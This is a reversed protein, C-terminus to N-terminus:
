DRYDRYFEKEYGDLPNMKDEKKKVRKEKKRGKDASLYIYIVAVILIISLLLLAPEFYEDEADQDSVEDKEKEGEGRYFLIFDEEAVNGAEDIVRVTVMYSANNELDSYPEITIVDGEDNMQYGVDLIEGTDLNKLSVMTKSGDIPESVNVTASGNKEDLETLTIKPDKRDVVVTIADWDEEQEINGASDIGVCAFRHAGDQSFNFDFLVRSIEGYITNDKIREWSSNEFSHYIHYRSLSHDDEILFEFRIHTRNTMMWKTDKDQNLIRTKPPDFDVITTTEGELNKNEINGSSDKSLTCFDYSGPSSPEFAFRGSENTGVLSKNEWRLWNGGDIRYHLAISSLNRNDSANYHIEFSENGVYAPSQVTESMPPDDDLITVNKLPTINKNFAGDNTMIQYGLTSANKPISVSVNFRNESSNYMMVKKFSTVDTGYYVFAMGVERNDRIDAIFDFTDNTTGSEASHDYVRPPDTDYVTINMVITYRTNNYTDNAKIQYYLYHANSPVEIEYLYINDESAEMTHNFTLNGDEEDFRYGVLVEDVQSDDTITANVTFLDSTKAKDPSNDRIMPGREDTTNFSWNYTDGQNGVIDKFDSVSLEIEDHDQWRSHTFRATDNEYKHTGWGLFSYEVDHEGSQNIVPIHSSNMSEDFTINVEAYLGVDVEDPKPDVSVVEPPRMDSTVNIKSSSTSEFGSVFHPESVDVYDRGRISVGIKVGPNAYHSVNMVLFLRDSGLNSVSYGIGDFRAAKQSVGSTSLLKDESHNFVGNEDEDLYLLMDYVDSDSCTGQLDAHLEDLVMGNTETSLSVGEMLVYREGQYAEEVTSIDATDVDLAGGEGFRVDDIFWGRSGTNIYDWGIRFRVKIVRGKYDSVDFKAHSWGSTYSAYASEGELPNDWRRSITDPYGNEPHIKSWSESEDDWLEVIGGDMAGNESTKFSYKHWFSIYIDDLSGDLEVYPSYLATSGGDYREASETGSWWSSNGSKSEHKTRGWNDRTMAGELREHSWDTKKGDFDFSRVRETRYPDTISIKLGSGISRELSSNFSMDVSVSTGPETDSPMKAEVIITKNEGPDMQGTDPIGDGDTDILEEGEESLLTIGVEDKSTFSIDTTDEKLGQNTVNIKYKTTEGPYSFDSILDRDIDINPKTEGIYFDDIYWGERYTGFYTRDWGVHFRLRVTRGRYDSINFVEQNWSPFKDNYTYAMKGKLPNTNVKNFREITIEGDYGEEPYIHVWSRSVNDWIEVVGGDMKFDSEGQFSYLHSFTLFKKDDSENIEFYPSILASGGSTMPTHFENGSWWSKEGSHSRKDTSMWQDHQKVGDILGHRWREDDEEFDDFHPLEYPVMTTMNFDYKVDENESSSLHLSSIEMAGPAPSSPVNVELIIKKKEHKSINGTKFVNSSENSGKTLPVGEEDYLEYDWGKESAYEIDFSDNKEGLNTIYINYRTEDGEMCYSEQPGTTVNFNHEPFDAKVSVDDVYWGSWENSWPEAWFHFRFLLFDNELFGSLNVKGQRWGNSKQGYCDAYSIPSSASITENYGDEPVVYDWNKGLDTSVELYGGDDASNGPDDGYISYWHYFSMNAKVAGRLDILPSELVVDANKTYNSKLNTGWCNSSSHPSEPGHEFGSVNGLEWRTGQGNDSDRWGDVPEHFDETYDPTISTYVRIDEIDSATPSSSSDVSIDGTYTVGRGVDKPVKLQISFNKQSLGPIVGTEIKGDGDEDILENEQNDLFKYSWNKPSTHTLEFTDNVGGKNSIIFNISVHEENEVIEARKELSLRTKQRPISTSLVIEDKISPDSRSELYITETDTDRTSASDPVNVRCTLEVTEGPDVPGIESLPGVMDLDGQDHAYVDVTWNSSSSSNVKFSDAETGTNILKIDYDLHQGIVGQKAQDPYSLIGNEQPSLVSLIRSMLRSRKEFTNISAFDFPTHLTKFDSSVSTATTRGNDKVFVREGEEVEWGDAAINDLKDYSEGEGLGTDIEDGIFTDEVGFVQWPLSFWDRFRFGFYREMFYEHDNVKASYGAGQSSLYLNGGDDLYDEIVDREEKILPEFDTYVSSRHVAYGKRNGTFWLTANHSLLAHIDPTGQTKVDWLNYTYQTSNIAETYLVETGLGGDDDVLLVDAKKYTYLSTKKGINEDKTSNFFALSEEPKHSPVHDAPISVNVVIKKVSGPGIKGTDILGNSDTDSLKNWDIDYLSTNWGSRNKVEIDYTDNHVGTNEIELIHSHDSGEEGDGSLTRHSLNLGATSTFFNVDDIYWGPLNTGVSSSFRWRIKITNGTHDSLDFYEKEWSPSEGSYGDGGYTGFDGNTYPYGHVPEVRTWSSSTSNLELIELFGGDHYKSIAYWNYFSLFASGSSNLHVPPSILGTESYDTYRGDLNTGWCNNLSHASSPGVTPEGYEWATGDGDSHVDWRDIGGEFDTSYPTTLPVTTNVMASDTKESEICSSFTVEHVCSELGDVDPPVTVRLSIKYSGGPSVNGTDVIGDGDTDEMEEGDSGLLRYEWGKDSSIDSLRYRDVRKGTNMVSLDHYVDEEPLGFSRQTNKGVHLDHKEPNLWEVIRESIEELDGPSAFSMEWGSYISRYTNNSFAVTNYPFSDEESKFTGFGQDDPRIETCHDEKIQDDWHSRTSTSFGEFMTGYSGEIDRPTEKISSDISSVHLYDKFFTDEWLNKLGGGYINKGISAGVLWLGGGDDLYEKISLRDETSLTTIKSSSTGDYGTVWIVIDYVSLVDSDPGDKGSPVVYRNFAYGASNLADGYYTRITPDEVIREDYPGGNNVSNDDDVLLIDPLLPIFFQYRSGNNDDTATNGAQDTSAVYFDYTSNQNLRSLIVEHDYVLKSRYVNETLNQDGYYVRTDSKEDTRWTIKMQAHPLLETKVDSIDPPKADIYATDQVLKSEGTGDDSDWYTANIMDTEWIELLGNNNTPEVEKNLDISGTFVGTDEEVAELILEEYDGTPHSTLYAKTTENKNPDTNLDTDSVTIRPTGVSDYFKKDFEIKGESSAKKYSVSLAFDQVKGDTSPVGDKPVDFGTVNITYKGYDLESSNIFVAEVNNIDDKEVTYSTSWGDSFQNGRYVRGDPSTVELDLDNVLAREAVPSGPADTWSLMVKLPEKKDGVNVDTSYTEGTELPDKQDQYIVDKDTHIMDKLYSRGWGEKNNPIPGTDHADDMDVAGSIIANKVMAPSPKEGFKELYYQTFVAASGSVAPTSMSTGSSWVYDDDIEGGLPNTSRVSSSLASSVETGPAVTDPKIRGDECPGRASFDPIEDINDASAGNEPRYNESAGVTIVNKGTGPAAITTEQPGSNGASFVVVMQQDGDEKIDSDRVLADFESSDVTYEGNNGGGWSNSMIYAGNDQADKLLDPFKPIQPNANDDFIRQNIIHSDPAVGMGYQYGNQDTTGISGDGAIVGSCHTGHGYVDEGVGDEDNEETYDLLADVRGRLDDHMTSLEGDDLGTDPVSVTINKGTYGLSNVFSGNEGWPEDATWNGGIIESQIEDMLRPPSYPEIWYVNEFSAIDSISSRNFEGKVGKYFDFEWKNYLKSAKEEIYETTRVSGEDNIVLISVNVKESGPNFTRLDDNELIDQHVKLDPNYEGVWRIPLSTGEVKDKGEESMSVLYAYEPIYEYFTVGKEELKDIWEGRAPESFQILHYDRDSTEIEETSSMMEEKRDLPDFSVSKMRIKLARESSDKLEEDLQDTLEDGGTTDSRLIVMFNSFLLIFIISISILRQRRSPGINM